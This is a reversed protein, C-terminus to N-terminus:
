NGWWVQCNQPTGLRSVFGFLPPGTSPGTSSAQLGNQKLINVLRQVQLQKWPGTMVNMILHNTKKPRGYPNTHFIIVESRRSQIITLLPLLWSFAFSQTLSTYVTYIYIYMCIKINRSFLVTGVNVQYTLFQMHLHGQGWAASMRGRSWWSNSNAITKDALSWDM